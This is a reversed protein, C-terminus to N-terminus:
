DNIAYLPFVIFDALIKGRFYFLGDLLHDIYYRHLQIILDRACVLKKRARTKKCLATDGGGLDGMIGPITVAALALFVPLTGMM